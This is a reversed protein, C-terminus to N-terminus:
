DTEAKVQKGAAIWAKIGGTVNAVSEFGEAELVSAALASRSGSQCHVMVRTTRPVDRMREVLSGLPVNQVGVIHGEKWEAHGRVDIVTAGQAALQAALDAVDIQRITALNRGAAKWAVLADSGFYGAIRELGIMALDRAAWQIADAPQEGVILYLAADYPVLAGAWTTFSTNLPINITGPIHGKAFDASPRIDVIVAGDSMRPVVQAPALREPVRLGNLLAPGDRNIRKMESFYAPPEPQDALVSEIFATEDDAGLAWNAIKEYGLTTSPVAGLSKGCASGAGHGPWLQLYDPLQKFRQLSRFLTCAAETM